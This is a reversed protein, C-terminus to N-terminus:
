IYKKIIKILSTMMEKISIKYPKLKKFDVQHNLLTMNFPQKEFIDQAETYCYAYFPV